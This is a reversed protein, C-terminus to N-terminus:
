VVFILLGVFGPLVAVSSVALPRVALLVIRSSGPLFLLIPAGFVVFAALSAFTAVAAFASFAASALLATFLLAALLVLFMGVAVCM